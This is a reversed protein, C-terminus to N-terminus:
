RAGAAQLATEVEPWALASIKSGNIFLTPTSDIGQKGADEAQKAVAEAAATNALCSHAKDVPVGRSSFFDVLGYADAVGVMRQAPPLAAAAQAAAQGKQARDLMANQNLYLQDVLGFFAEPAACRALVTLPVDIGHIAFSRYEYSVKGSAVYTGSLKQFGETALKACHPCSLSGYEVLKIPAAPNGMVMGGEPTAKVVDTWAKGAPPAVAAVPDGSSSGTSDSKKCAALGLALPLVLGAMGLLYLPRPLRTLTM